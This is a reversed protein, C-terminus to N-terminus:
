SEIPFRRETIDRTVNSFGILNDADDRIADLVVNAWFRSDDKRVRWGEAEYRGQERASKLILALVGSARDEETYFASHDHGIIEDASYGKIRAAGSNWTVVRGDVDLMLIAYDVVSEVLPRFQRESENLARETKQRREQDSSVLSDVV